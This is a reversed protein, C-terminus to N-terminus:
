LWFLIIIVYVNIFYITTSISYWYYVSCLPFSVIIRMHCKYKQKAQGRRRKMIIEDNIQKVSIVSKVLGILIM